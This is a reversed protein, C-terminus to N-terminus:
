NSFLHRYNPKFAKCLQEILLWLKRRIKSMFIYDVLYDELCVNAQNDWTRTQRDVDFDEYVEILGAM